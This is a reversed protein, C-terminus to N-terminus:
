LNRLRLRLRTRAVRQVDGSAARMRRRRRLLENRLIRIARVRRQRHVHSRRRGRWRTRSVRWVRGRGWIGRCRRHGGTRWVWGIWRRGGRWRQLRWPDGGLSGGLAGTWSGGFVGHCCRLRHWCRQTGVNPNTRVASQSVVRLSRRPPREFLVTSASASVSTERTWVLRM